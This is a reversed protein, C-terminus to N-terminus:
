RFLIIDKIYKIKIEPISMDIAKSLDLNADIFSAIVGQAVAAEIGEKRIAEVLPPIVSAAIGANEALVKNVVSLTDVRAASLIAEQGFNFIPVAIAEFADAALHIASEIGTIISGFNGLVGSFSDKAEIIVEVTAAM